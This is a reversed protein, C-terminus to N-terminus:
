KREKRFHCAALHDAEPGVPLLEPPKIACNADARPCRPHFECGTPRAMPSPPEGVLRNDLTGHAPRLRPAAALLAVTYPHRPDEFVEDRSGEEVVRGLYMVAVRDCVHRVAALNHSIMVVGIGLRDSLDAFLSLITAQVSVDLASTPEDAVLVAPEVALARAIALRQRQGGSFVSPYSDLAAPPLGVLSLLEVCRERIAARSTLRHAILLQRLVTGVKLRPNLSSFPDQFVLQVARRQEGTRCAGLLQGCLKVTGSQPQQLGVLCRAVTTKGSGSEGVVGVMEGANVLLSVGEIAVLRSRGEAPFEVRLDEAALLPVKTEKPEPGEANTAELLQSLSPEGLSGTM